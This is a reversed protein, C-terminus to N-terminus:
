REIIDHVYIREGVPVTQESLILGCGACVIQKIMSERVFTIHHGEREGEIFEQKPHKLTILRDHPCLPTTAIEGM